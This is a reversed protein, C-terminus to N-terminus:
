TKKRNRRATAAAGKAKNFRQFAKIKARKERKRALNKRAREKKLRNEHEPSEKLRNRYREQRTRGKALMAEYEQPYKLKTEKYTRKRRIASKSREKDVWNADRTLRSITIRAGKSGSKLYYNLMNNLSAADRFSTAIKHGEVAFSLMEDPQKIANIADPNKEIDRILKEIKEGNFPLTLEQIQGNRLKTVKAVQLGIQPDYKIAAIQDPRLGKVDLFYEAPKTGHRVTRAIIKPNKAQRYQRAVTKNIRISESHTSTKAKRPARKKTPKSKAM